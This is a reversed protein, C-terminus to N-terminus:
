KHVLKYLRPTIAVAVVIGLASTMLSFPINGIAVAMSGTVAWWAVVYGALTWVSAAMTAILIRGRTPTKGERYGFYGVVFGSIGKIVLSFPTYASLGSLVDFLVSGIGGGVAGTWRGFLLAVVYLAASGLHILAGNPGPVLIFTALTCLAISLGMYVLTKDRM